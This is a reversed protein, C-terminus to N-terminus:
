NYAGEVGISPITVPGIEQGLVTEKHLTANMVEAVFSIWAKPSLNWRKELRLDLRYFAPDRDPNLSRPPPILGRGGTPVVPTGSYATFRTGFRWNKGLDLAVATNFVHPRDFASVFRERDVSRISRSLTYSVYGGIRKTLKRRVYLEMGFANGESRPEKNVNDAPDNGQSVGLTDSMNQFINDFATLSATTEQPLDVEVGASSMISQQLGGSLHGVALGPLPIVYSPPQHALGFTHIVHVKQTVDIKSSIRPDVGVAHAGASDFYDVRFGPTLTWGRTKLVVDTWGGVTTDDRPPFLANFRKVDPDDPDAYPQADATYHEILGDIGGRLLAHDSLAHSIEARAGISKNQSNRPQDPIRNQDYGLTLAVRANTDNDIVRDYRFDTRYFEAGFLVTDIGNLNQTLLDFAGFGLVSVRDKPTIDYSTRFEFDRYDLKTQPAILGLVAATYSYRGAVLATGKGDAFGTEALAGADFLRINGEGHLEPRPALTEASVVAGAFRGFRAPYGGPHLDVRDIMGPHIVAPGFGVHFLYPVKVGDLFYGVNGPPAGRVYFFPLGSVIPTVGPLADLARFPDGFAGPLQRVEARGLSTSGPPIKSGQIVVEDPKEVPPPLPKTAERAGPVDPPPPEPPPPEEPVPAKFTVAFRIRAAIPRGNRTAPDFQWSRSAAIAASVFPEEGSVAKVDEVNGEVSVLLELVVNADGSAGPPYTVDTTTRARPPMVPIAPPEPPRPQTQARATTSWATALLVLMWARLRM